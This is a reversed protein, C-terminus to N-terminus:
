AALEDELPGPEINEGSSLVIADKARGALFLSGDALLHGLDGTNFWAETDLVEGTAEPRNLYGKMVQPGRALVLGREGQQLHAAM